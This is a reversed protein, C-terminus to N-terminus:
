VTAKRRKTICSLVKYLVSYPLKDNICYTRISAHTLRSVPTISNTNKSLQGRPLIRVRLNKRRKRKYADTYTKLPRYRGTLWYCGDAM